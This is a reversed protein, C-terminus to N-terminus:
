GGDNRVREWMKAATKKAIKMKRRYWIACRKAGKEEARSQAAIRASAREGTYVRRSRRTLPLSPNAAPMTVKVVKSMTIPGAINRRVTRVACATLRYWHVDSNM